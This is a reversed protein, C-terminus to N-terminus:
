WGVDMDWRVVWDFISPFNWVEDQKSNPPPQTLTEFTKCKKNVPSGCLESNGLYSKNLFTSFQQGQPIPGMLHNNSVNFFELFTLQLLQHPIEGVLKNKSLDLSKLEILNGFSPSIHGILINNSLNLLHLGKLNGIVEFIEGEFKNSSLDITTLHNQIKRYPTEIGKNTIDLSYVFSSEWSFHKSTVTTLTVTSVWNKWGTNWPTDNCMPDKAVHSM